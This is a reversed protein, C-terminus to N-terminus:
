CCVDIVGVDVVVLVFRKSRHRGFMFVIPFSNSFAVEFRYHKTVGQHSPNCKDKTHNGSM